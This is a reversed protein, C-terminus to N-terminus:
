SNTLKLLNESILKWTFYNEARERGYNGIKTLGNENKLLNSITTTIENINTGDIIFGSKNNEVADAIGGFNGAIVPKGCASAELFVIGFGEYDGSLNEDEKTQRNLLLFIDCLNYYKQLDNDSVFGCFIVNEKVEFKNVLNKLRDIERGKGVILYVINPIEKELKAISEIVKDHGKREDLRAVTLLVKKDSLNYKEVLVKDPIDPQFRNTDVGPTIIKFKEKPIDLRLFEEQTFNSNPIIYEAENLFTKIMRMLYKNNGFRYTESGYVYIFYPVKFIKKMIWGTMGSSLVQGCHIIEFKYKLHLQITKFTYIFSKIIKHLPSSGTPIGVRIINLNSTKDFNEFEKYKAALIINEKSNYFKWIEHFYTAIGSCVPPFDGPILLSKQYQLAM